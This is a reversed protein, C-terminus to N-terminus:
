QNRMYYKDWARENIINSVYTIIDNADVHIDNMMAHWNHENNEDYDCHHSINNEVFIYEMFGHHIVTTWRNGFEGCSTDDYEIFLIEGSDLRVFVTGYPQWYEGSNNCTSPNYRQNYDATVYLLKFM